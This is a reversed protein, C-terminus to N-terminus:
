YCWSQNAHQFVHISYNFKYIIFDTIEFYDNKYCKFYHLHTHLNTKCFPYGHSLTVKYEFASSIAHGLSYSQSADDINYPM